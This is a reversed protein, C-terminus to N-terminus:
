IYIETEHYGDKLTLTLSQDNTTGPLDITLKYSASGIGWVRTKITVGADRVKGSKTQKKNGDAAIWREDPEDSTIVFAYFKNCMGSVPEMTLTLDRM